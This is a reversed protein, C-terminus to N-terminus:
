KIEWLLWTMMHTSLSLSWDSSCLWGLVHARTRCQLTICLHACVPAKFEIAAEQTNLLYMMEVTFLNAGM